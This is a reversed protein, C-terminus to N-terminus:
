ETASAMKLLEYFKSRYEDYLPDIDKFPIGLDQVFFAVALCRQIANNISNAKDKATKCYESSLWQITSAYERVYFIKVKDLM